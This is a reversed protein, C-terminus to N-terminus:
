WWVVLFETLKVTDITADIETDKADDLLSMEDFEAALTHTTGNSLVYITKDHNSRCWCAVIVFLRTPYPTSFTATLRLINTIENHFKTARQPTIFIGHGHPTLSM